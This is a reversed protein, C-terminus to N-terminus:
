FWRWSPAPKPPVEQAKLHGIAAFIMRKIAGLGHEAQDRAYQVVAQSQADSLVKNHGGHQIVVGRNTKAKAAKKKERHWAVRVSTEHKPLDEHFHIRAAIIPSELPNDRLWQLALRMRHKDPLDRLYEM